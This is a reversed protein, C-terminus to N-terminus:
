DSPHNAAIAEVVVEVLKTEGLENLHCCTDIYVPEDVDAFLM